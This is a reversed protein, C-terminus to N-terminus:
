HIIGEPAKLSHQRLVGQTSYVKNAATDCFVTVTFDTETYVARAGGCWDGTPVRWGQM